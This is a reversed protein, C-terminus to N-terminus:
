NSLFDFDSFLFDFILKKIIKIIFLYAIKIFLDTIKIFLDTIEYNTEELTGLVEM